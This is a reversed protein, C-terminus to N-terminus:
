CHATEWAGYPPRNAASVDFFPQCRVLALLVSPSPVVSAILAPALACPSLDEGFSSYQDHPLHFFSDRGQFLLELRELALVYFRFGLSFALLRLTCFLIICAAFQKRAGHDELFDRATFNLFCLKALPQIASKRLSFVAGQEIQSSLLRRGGPRRCSGASLSQSSIVRNRIVQRPRGEFLNLEYTEFRGMATSWTAM